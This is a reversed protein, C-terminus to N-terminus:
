HTEDYFEWESLVSYREGSYVKEVSHWHDPSTTFLVLRNPIPDVYIASSCAEFENEHLLLRGGFSPEWFSSAYLIAVLTLREATDTHVPFAPTEISARRLQIANAENISAYRGTLQRIIKVFELSLFTKALELNPLEAYQIEQPDSPDVHLGTKSFQLESAIKKFESPEIFEDLVFHTWPTSRKVKGLAGPSAKRLYKKNILTNM